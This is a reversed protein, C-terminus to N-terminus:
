GTQHWEVKNYPQWPSNVSVPQLQIHWVEHDSSVSDLAHLTTHNNILIIDGEKVAQKISVRPDMCISELRNELLKSDTFHESHDIHTQHSPLNDTKQADDSSSWWRLTDQKTLPCRMIVPYRYVESALHEENLPYALTTQRLKEREQGHIMLTVLSSDIFLNFSDTKTTQKNSSQNQHYYLALENPTFDEYDYKTQTVRMHQPPCVLDWHISPMPLSDNTFSQANESTFPQHITHINTPNWPVVAGRNEYWSEMDSPQSFSQFGRLTMHGFEKVLQALEKHQLVDVPISPNNSTLTLGFKEHDLTAEIQKLQELDDSSSASLKILCWPQGQYDVNLIAGEQQRHNEQSDVLFEGKNADYMLTSHWPTKFNPEDFLYLSYKKGIMPHEHISLRICDHFKQGLFNDLAKGQIMMGKAIEALRKRRKAYSLTALVPKQDQSMFKKLGLYTSNMKKNKRKLQDFDVEYEKDGFQNKLEQFYDIDSVGEFEKFHEFNLVKIEDDCNMKKIIKRLGDSYDYHNKLDVNIYDSFTHYDSFIYFCIGHPYISQINRIMKIFKKIVLYEGMDPHHSLVKELNNTKCPFAPLLLKVKKQNSVFHRIKNKLTVLGEFSANSQSIVQNLLIFSIKEVYEENQQNIM